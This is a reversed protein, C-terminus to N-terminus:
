NFGLSLNRKKLFAKRMNKKKTAAAAPAEAAACLSVKSDFDSVSLRFSRTCEALSNKNDLHARIIPSNSGILSHQFFSTVCHTMILFYIPFPM